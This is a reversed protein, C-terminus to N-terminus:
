QEELQPVGRVLDVNTTVPGLFVLSLYRSSQLSLIVSTEDNSRLADKNSAGQKANPWSNHQCIFRNQSAIVHMRVRCRFYQHFNSVAGWTSVSSHLELWM